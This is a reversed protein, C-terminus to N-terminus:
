RGRRAARPQRQTTILLLATMLAASTLCWMCTAGIVFPELFTLYISFLTGLLALAPLASAAIDAVGGGARRLAWAALIAVYGVIGLVGIPLVGFLRAYPSQQVTNCDGVPGCVAQAGSLEVSALYFAVGMGIIALAPVAQERWAPLPRAFPPRASFLVSLVATLMALLLIVALGNALPDRQFPSLAPASAPALDAQTTDPGVLADLGPIAPWGNGGASLIAVIMAPLRAPIEESGVMVEQGLVLAPVGLRDETIEFTTVAAQYLTQGDPQTVDVTLIRLQDGYHEQLPPLVQEMVIHCHPCTPSFFLVAHVAPDAAHAAGAGLLALLGALLAIVYGIASLKHSRYM